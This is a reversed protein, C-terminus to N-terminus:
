GKTHLQEGQHVSFGAHEREFPCERMKQLMALDDDGAPCEVFEIFGFFTRM